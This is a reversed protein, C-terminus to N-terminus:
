RSCLNTLAPPLTIRLWRPWGPPWDDCGAVYRWYTVLLTLLAFDIADIGWGIFCLPSLGTAALIGGIVALVAAGASLTAFIFQLWALYGCSLRCSGCTFLWILFLINGLVLLVLGIVIAVIGITIAVPNVLFGVVCFAIGFILAGALLIVLSAILAILCWPIDFGGGGGGGGGGDCAAVHVAATPTRCGTPDTVNVGLTYDGPPLDASGSMETASTADTVNDLTAVVTTGEMLVLNATTPDQPTITASASVRRRGNDDCVPAIDIEGLTVDPCTPPPTVIEICPPVHLAEGSYNCGDPATVDVGITYDGPPVEANGSLLTQGTANQVQDLVAMDNEGERIVLRASVPHGLEPKVTASATIVRNQNPTCKDSVTVAGRIVQPCLAPMDPPPAPCAPVEIIGAPGECPEPALIRLGYIYTGGPLLTEASITEGPEPTEADLPIEDGGELPRIYFQAFVPGLGSPLNTPLIAEIRVLREGEICGADSADAIAAGFKDWAPCANETQCQLLDLKTQALCSADADCTIIVDVDAVTGCTLGSGSVDVRAIWGGPATQSAAAEFPGGGAALSVTATLATCDQASGWAVVRTVAPDNAQRYAIAGEISISCTM